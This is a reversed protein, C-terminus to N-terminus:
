VLEAALADLREYKSEADRCDIAVNEGMRYGLSRLGDIFARFGVNSQPKDSTCAPTLSGDSSLFAIRPRPAPGEGEAAAAGAVLLLCIFGLLAIPLRAWRWQHQAM